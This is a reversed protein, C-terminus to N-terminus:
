FEDVEDLRAQGAQTLFRRVTRNKGTVDILGDERLDNLKNQMTGRAVNQGDAALADTLGRVSVAADKQIEKLIRTGLDDAAFQAHGRTMPEARVSEEVDGDGDIVSPDSLPKLRFYVDPVPKSRRKSLHAQVIGGPLVAVNLNSDIAGWSSSAGRPRMERLRRQPELKACEASPHALVVVAPNGPGNAVRGFSDFYRQMQTNDNESEGSFHAALTDVVILGYNKQSTYFLVKEAHDAFSFGGKRIDIPVNRPDIGRELCMLVIRARVDSYNEGAFYLVPMPELQRGHFVEGLAVAFAVELAIATKGGNPNATVANVTQCYWGLPKVVSKRPKVSDIFDAMSQVGLPGYAGKDTSSLGDATGTGLAVLARNAEALRAKQAGLWEGVSLPAGEPEQKAAIKRLGDLHAPDPADFGPLPQEGFEVVAQAARAITEVQSRRLAQEKARANVSVGRGVLLALAETVVGQPVGLVRVVRDLDLGGQVARAIDEAAYDNMDYLIGGHAKSNIKPRGVAANAYIKATQRGYGPGEIPDAIPVGDWSTLNELVDLVTPKGLKSDNLPILQEALDLKRYEMIFALSAQAQAITVGHSQAREAVWKDKRRTIEAQIESSAVAADWLQAVKGAAAEKLQTKVDFVKVAGRQLQGMRGTQKLHEAPDLTPPAEYIPQQPMWITHDIISWKLARGGGVVRAYGLGAEWLRDRVTKMFHEADQGDSLVVYAHEGGGPYTEGDRNDIIGSSTSPRRLVEVDKLEPVAHCVAEWPGGLAKVRDRIHRPYSKEDFDFPQLAPVGTAYAFDEATRHVYDRGHEGTGQTGQLVVPVDTDDPVGKPLRGMSLAQFKNLGKIIRAADALTDTESLKVRKANIYSLAKPAQESQWDGGSNERRITKTFPLGDTKELVVLEIGRHDLIKRAGPNSPMKENQDTM